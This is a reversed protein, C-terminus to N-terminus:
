NTGIQKQIEGVTLPPKSQALIDLALFETETLDAHSKEKARSQAAWSDKTVEFVENVFTQLQQAQKLMNNMGKM